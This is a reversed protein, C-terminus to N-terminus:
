TRKVTYCISIVYSVELPLCASDFSTLVPPRRFEPLYRSFPADLDVGHEEHLMLVALSTILKTMSAIRFVSDLRM